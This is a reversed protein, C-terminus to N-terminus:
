KMNQIECTIHDLRRARPGVMTRLTKADRLMREVRYDAMYGYGGLVQVADLCVQEAAEVALASGLIGCGPGYALARAARVRMDMDALLLRVVDHDCIMKGGQYRDLSYALATDRAKQALGLAVAAFVPDAFGYFDRVRDSGQFSEIVHGAPVQVSRFAVDNVPCFKMGMHAIGQSVAVGPADRPVAVWCLADREAHKALVIFMGACAAGAVLTKNGTVVCGADSIAVTTEVSDPILDPGPDEGAAPVLVLPEGRAEAAAVQALLAHAADNHALLLPALGAFHTALVLGAGGCAGSVQELFVCYEAAGLGSGGQAEPVAFGFIGAGAARELVQARVAADDADLADWHPRLANASFDAGLQKMQNEM